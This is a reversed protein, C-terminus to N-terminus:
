RKTHPEVWQQLDPLEVVASVEACRAARGDTRRVPSCDSPAIEVRRVAIPQEEVMAVDISYANLGGEIVGRAIQDTGTLPDTTALHDTLDSTGAERGATM